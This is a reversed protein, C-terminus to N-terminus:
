QQRPQAGARAKQKLQVQRLKLDTRGVVPINGSIQLPFRSVPDLYIVIGNHLGMLSFDEDAKLDSEMPQTEVAIKLAKIPGKKRVQNQVTKEFYDVMLPYLGQPRLTVRHLQRKDFICLSLPGSTESLDAASLIYLLALRESVQPCGLRALDYAYFSDKVDTWKEPELSIEKKNLPERRHRFVGQRTFRYTKKFDDQGQRLRIRGLVAAAIPDLWIENSIQVHARFDADIGMNLVLRFLRPGSPQVPTGRPSKPLAGQAVVASLSALRIQVNLTATFKNAQLVLEDWVVREADLELRSFSEAPVSGAWVALYLLLGLCIAASRTKGHM